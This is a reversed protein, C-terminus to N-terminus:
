RHNSQELTLGVDVQFQSPKVETPLKHIRLKWRVLLDDRGCTFARHARGTGRQRVREVGYRDGCATAASAHLDRKRLSSESYFTLTRFRAFSKILKRYVVITLLEGNTEVGLIEQVDKAGDSVVFHDQAQTTLQIWGHDARATFSPIAVIQSDDHWHPDSAFVEGTFHNDCSPSRTLEVLGPRVRTQRSCKRLKRLMASRTSSGAGRNLRIEPSLPCPFVLRM